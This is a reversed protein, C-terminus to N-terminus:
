EAAFRIKRKATATDSPIGYFYLHQNRPKNNTDCGDYLRQEVLRNQQDYYYLECINGTAKGATYLTHSYRLLLRDQYDFLQRTVPETKGEQKLFVTFSALLTDQYTKVHYLTRDPDKM